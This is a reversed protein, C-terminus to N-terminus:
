LKQSVMLGNETGIFASFLSGARLVARNYSKIAQVEEVGTGDGGSEPSFDGSAFADDAILLGGSALLPFCLKLYDPYSVKDADIFILDVSGPECRALASAASGVEIRVRDALGARALNVRALEALAPDLELSILRGGEPLGRAIHVASYGFYTGIEVALRPAKLRTLLQLVRGANDDVQMPRLRHQLLAERLIGDLVPDRPGVLSRVYQRPDAAADAM